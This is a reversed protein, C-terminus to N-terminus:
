TTGRHAISTAPVSSPRPSKREPSAAGPTGAGRAQLLSVGLLTRGRGRRTFVTGNVTREAAGSLSGLRSVRDECTRLGCARQGRGRGSLETCWGARGPAPARSTSWPAARSLRARNGSGTRRGGDWGGASRGSSRSGPRADGGPRALVEACNRLEVYLRSRTRENPAARSTRERDGRRGVTRWLPVVAGM